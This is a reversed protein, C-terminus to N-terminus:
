RLNKEKKKQFLRESDSKNQETVTTTTRIKTKRANPAVNTRQVASNGYSKQM